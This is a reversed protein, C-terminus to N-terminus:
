AFHKVCVPGIGRAVSEEDSLEAGCCVCRGYQRGLDAAQQETLRQEVTLSGVVGKAFTWKGTAPDLRKAYTRTKDQNPVVRYVVGDSLYFGVGVSPRGNRPDNKPRGPIYGKARLYELYGKARDIKQSAEPVTLNAGALDRTVDAAWQPDLGVVEVGEIIQRLLSRLFAIQRDTAPRAPAM